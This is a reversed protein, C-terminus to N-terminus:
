IGLKIHADPMVKAVTPVTKTFISTRLSSLSKTKFLLNEILPRFAPM